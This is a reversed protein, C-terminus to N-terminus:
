FAYLFRTGFTNTNLGNQVEFDNRYQLLVQFSKNLWFGLTLQLAHDDKEDNQEIEDVTTEGGNHYFYDASIFFADSLDYGIRGELTFVPDQEMTLSAAGLDDNDTFFEVNATLETFLKDFGKSFGLETKFAWRNTGMNLGKNNDYDGLPITIFPTFGLWTKSEPKNILWMTAAIIPDGFGSATVESGGINTTDLNQDGFIILAQPDITFSGIKTYYIPRLIGINASLGIDSSIESGDANLENASIHRYYVAMVKTGPPAAWYDKADNDAFSVGTFTMMVFLFIGMFLGTFKKM